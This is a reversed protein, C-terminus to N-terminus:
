QAAQIVEAAEEVIEWQTPTPPPIGLLQELKELRYVAHRQMEHMPAPFSVSKRRVKDGRERRTARQIVRRSRM